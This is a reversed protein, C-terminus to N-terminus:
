RPAATAGTSSAGTTRRTSGCRTTTATSCRRATFTKGGDTSKWVEVHQVYVTDPDQTDATIHLYSAPFRRLERDDYVAALDRRRRRLPVRRGRGGRHDRLGPEAPGALDGRRDERGPREAAGPQPHDGDLHRRRRDDQLPRQGARRQDRGVSDSSSTSRRSSSTRTPRTWRTLDVAGARESKYLVKQWTKGGDKTRFVGREPNTGFMDGMAAVYVIDPNTPHIRIKSIHRTEKLGVNTWTHGGDTSKYVGDGPTLHQRPARNARGSTCWTTTRARCRSRASRHSAQLLRGVREALVHGRRHDELRRRPRLRLLLRPSQEPDGAVAPARGGRFPGISRWELATLFSPDVSPYAAAGATAGSGAGGPKRSCGVLAGVIVCTAAIVAVALRATRKKM